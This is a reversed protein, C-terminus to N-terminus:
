PARCQNYIWFGVIRLDLGVQLETTERKISSWFGQFSLGQVEEAIVADLDINVVKLQQRHCNRHGARFTAAPIQEVPRQNQTSIRAGQPPADTACIGPVGSEGM